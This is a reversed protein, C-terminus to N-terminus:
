LNDLYTNLSAREATTLKTNTVVIEKALGEFAGLVRDVNFTNTNTLDSGQQTTGLWASTREGGSRELGINYWHGTSVTTAYNMASGGGIKVRMQSTTQLRFFDDNPAGTADNFLIDNAGGSTIATFNLRVWFSFDGTFDYQPVDLKNNGIGKVGKTSGDYVFRTAAGVAHRNGGSYDEWGYVKESDSCANGASNTIGRGNRFWYILGSLNAPTWDGGVTSTRINLRNGLKM